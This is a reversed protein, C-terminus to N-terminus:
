PFSKTLDLKVQNFVKERNTTHATCVKWSLMLKGEEKLRRKVASVCSLHIVVNQVLGELQLWINGIRGSVEQLAEQLLVPRLPQAGLVVKHTGREQEGPSDPFCVLDGSGKKFEV